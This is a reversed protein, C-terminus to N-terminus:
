RRKAALVEDFFALHRRAVTPLAFEAHVREQGRRSFDARRGPDAILEDLVRALAGPDGEPVVIGAGGIVHPIEGSGSGVVPVGCAMAEILMRGFQERWRPTTLSPAVLVDMAALYAPVQDHAVGGAVRVRGRFGGAWAELMEREPGGGVFLARWGRETRGLAATLVRLGKPEVFRGLYGIVPAGEDEWGLERRIRRRAEPDPRFRETDVGPAIVAHPRDRYGPREALTEQVTHGFAIWGDARKMSAREFWSFPPPYRKPLNQFTAYVLAADRQAWRAVDAAALVFPEQWCHIVDWREGRLLEKLRRGYRMLHPRRAWHVPVPVVRCAEGAIPELEVDRLDGPFREPAAATVEWEGAGAVAMEHALRRNAAVVYSHGLTLLRKM